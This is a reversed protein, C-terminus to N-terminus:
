GFMGPTLREVEARLAKLLAVERRIYFAIDEGRNDRWFRYFHPTPPYQMAVLVPLAAREEDSVPRLTAYADIFARAFDSRITLSSRSERGFKLLGAALDYAYPGRDVDDFDFVAAVDDGDFVLNRGHFDGHLWGSPLADLRALPWEHLVDRWWGSLYALEEAAEGQLLEALGQLDRTANAWCERLPAKYEPGPAERQFSETILHFRALTRAAEAVHEPRAFDYESGAIHEFLLWPVGDGDVAFPRGSATEVLRSTPFGHDALHQQLALQFEIRAVDANLHQRRLVYRRTRGDAVLWNDNGYSEFEAVIAANELAYARAVAPPIDPGMREM